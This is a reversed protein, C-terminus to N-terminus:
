VVCVETTIDVSDFREWTELSRGAPSGNRPASLTTMLGRGRDEWTCASLYAGIASTWDHTGKYVLLRGTDHYRRKRVYDAGREDRRAELTATNTISTGNYQAYLDDQLFVYTNQNATPVTPDTITYDSTYYSLTGDDYPEKVRFEVRVKHPFSAIRGAIQYNDYILDDRYLKELRDFETASTATTLGLREITFADGIPDYKLACALRTLFYDVAQLPNLHYFWLGEPTGHPTFPLTPAAGLSSPWLDDFIEQWTWATGAGDETTDNIYSGTDDRFNYADTKPQGRHYEHWRKDAVEVVYGTDVDDEAGPVCVECHGVIYVTAIKLPSQGPGRLIQLEHAADGDGVDLYQITSLPMLLKGGGPRGGLANTFANAQGIWHDIRLGHRTAYEYVPKPDLCQFGDLLFSM